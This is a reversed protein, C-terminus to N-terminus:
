YKRKLVSYVIWYVVLMFCVAGSAALCLLEQGVIRLVICSIATLMMFLYGTWAWAKNRIFRNREDNEEIEMRERYAENKNLRYYRLLQIVGIVLLSTGMGNWFMDVKGAFSLCILVTGLIIWVINVLVSLKIRKEYKM